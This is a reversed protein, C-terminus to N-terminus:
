IKTIIDGDFYYIHNSLVEEEEVQTENIERLMTLLKWPHIEGFDPVILFEHISSPLLFYNGGVHAYIKEPIGPYLIVGAGNIGNENTLVYLPSEALEEMGEKEAFDALSCFVEPCLRPTNEKAYQYLVSIPLKWMNLHENKVLVSCCDHNQAPILVYFVIVFDLIPLHPVQKLMQANKEAHVLKYVIQNKIKQFDLMSHYDWEPASPANESYTILDKALEEVTDGQLYKRYFEELYILPAIAEGKRRIAVGSLTVGNNKLVEQREAWATEQLERNICEQMTCIFQEYNM